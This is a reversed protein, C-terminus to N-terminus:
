QGKECSTVSHMEWMSVPTRDFWCVRITGLVYTYQVVTACVTRLLSGFPERPFQFPGPLEPVALGICLKGITEPICAEVVM